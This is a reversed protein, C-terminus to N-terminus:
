ASRWSLPRLAITADKEGFSRTTVRYSVKVLYVKLLRDKEHYEEKTNLLEETVQSGNGM